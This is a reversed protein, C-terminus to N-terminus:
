RSDAAGAERVARGWGTPWSHTCFDVAQFMSDVKRNGVCRRSPRSGGPTTVIQM